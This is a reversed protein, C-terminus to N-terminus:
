QVAGSQKWCVCVLAYLRVPDVWSLDLVLREAERGHIVLIPRRPARAALKLFVGTVQSWGISRTGHAERLVIGAPESVLVALPQRRHLRYSGLVIFAGFGGLVLVPIWVGQMAPLMALALAPTATMLPLVMARALSPRVLELPLSYANTIWQARRAIIAVLEGAHEIEYYIRHVRSGGCGVLALHPDASRWVHRIERIEQWPLTQEQGEGHVFVLEKVRCLIVGRRGRGGRLMVWCLMAAPVLLGSVIALAVPETRNVVIVGVGGLVLVLIFGASALCIMRGNRAYSFRVATAGSLEMM